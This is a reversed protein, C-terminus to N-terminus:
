RMVFRDRVARALDAFAKHHAATELLWAQEKPEGTSAQALAVADGDALARAFTALAM